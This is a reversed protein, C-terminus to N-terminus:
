KEEKGRPPVEYLTVLEELIEYPQAGTLKHKGMIFTPIAQVGKFRSDAWDLDVNERYRRSELIERAQEGDLGAQQAIKILATIGAINTGDKFYAKFAAMHFAHGKGQDEAWLGLEQALRSNYTKTRANFPLNLRTATAQLEQVMSQIKAESVRFLTALPTGEEPTEPHLPFTRWRM